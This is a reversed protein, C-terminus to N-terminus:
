KGSVEGATKERTRWRYLVGEVARVSQEGLLEAIEEQSYGDITLAVVARARPDADQLRGVVHINGTAQVAPDAAHDARPVTLAPDHKDQRRWKENQVRRKRFENPFVYLCAGMFYTPLTAGGDYRWGSGILARERFRPLAVAVTMNALEDRADSDRQLEELETDTPHLAFGRSATLKFVYGSYMWARLVATGYRALEEQFRLYQRGSFDHRALEDRLQQDAARRQLNEELRRADEADAPSRIGRLVDPLALPAGLDPGEGPGKAPQVSSGPAGSGPVAGPERGIDM